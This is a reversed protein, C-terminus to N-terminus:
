QDLGCRGLDALLDTVLLDLEDTLTRPLEASLEARIEAM